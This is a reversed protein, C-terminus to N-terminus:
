ALQRRGAPDRRDGAPGRRRGGPRGRPDGAAVQAAQEASEASDQAVQATSAATERTTEVMRVQREAGQAVDTVAAAIEGVARSAEESTAAMQQSASSVTGASISVDGIIGSLTERTTNYAVVSAVTSNRIENFSTGLRGLEDKSPNEILPTVPTVEVTLDGDAMGQLAAQMDTVCNSALMNMRELLVRVRGATDRTIWVAVAIAALLALIALIMIKQKESKAHATRDVIDASVERNLTDALTQGAKEVAALQAVVQDTYVARSADRTESKKVTEARSLELAKSVAQRFGKDASAFNEILEAHDGTFYQRAQASAEENRKNLAEIKGVLADETRLNGDYVYLHQATLHAAAESRSLLGGVLHTARFDGGAEETDSQTKSLDSFALM